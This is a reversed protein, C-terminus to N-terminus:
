GFLEGAEVEIDESSSTIVNEVDLLVIDMKPAIYNKMKTIRRKQINNHMSINLILVSHKMPLM